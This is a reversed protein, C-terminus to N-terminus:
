DFLVKQSIVGLVTDEAKGAERPNLCVGVVVKVTGSRTEDEEQGHCVSCFM